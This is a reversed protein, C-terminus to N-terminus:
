KKIENFYRKYKEIDGGSNKVAPLIREEYLKIAKETDGNDKYVWAVTDLRGYDNTKELVALLSRYNPSYLETEHMNWLVKNLYYEETYFGSLINKNWDSLARTENWLVEKLRWGDDYLQFKTVIPISTPGGILKGVESQEITFNFEVKRNNEDITSIGTTEVAVIRGYQLIVEDYFKNGPTYCYSMLKPLLKVSYNLSYRSPSIAYGGSVLLSGGHPENYNSDVKFTIYEWNTKKFLEKASERTLTRPSEGCGQITLLVFALFISISKVNM